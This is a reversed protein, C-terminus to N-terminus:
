CCPCVRILRNVVAREATPTTVRWLSMLMTKRSTMTMASIIMGSGVGTTSVSMPTFMARDKVMRIIVMYTRVTSSKETKGVSSRNVVRNRTPRLMVVVRRM